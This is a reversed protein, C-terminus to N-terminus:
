IANRISSMTVTITFPLDVERALDSIPILATDFLASRELATKFGALAERSKATGRINIYEIGSEGRKVSQGSLVVDSGAAEQITLVIENLSVLAGSSGLQGALSNAARVLNESDKFDQETGSGKLVELELAELQTRVLVFSPITVFLTVLVVASLLFLWATVVRAWYERVVSKYAQPPILNIM